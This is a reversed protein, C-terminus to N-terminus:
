AKIWSTRPRPSISPMWNSKGPAWNTFPQRSRPKRTLQVISVTRRKKGREDDVLRFHVEEHRGEIFQECFRLPTTSSAHNAIGLRHSGALAQAGTATPRRTEFIVELPAYRVAKQLTPRQSHDKLFRGAPRPDGKLDTHKLQPQSRKRLSWSRPMPTSLTASM